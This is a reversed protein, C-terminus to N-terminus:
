KLIYANLYNNAFLISHNYITFVFKIAALFSQGFECKEAKIFSGSTPKRTYFYRQIMTFILFRM